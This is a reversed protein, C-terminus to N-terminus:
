TCSEIDVAVQPGHLSLFRSTGEEEESSLAYYDQFVLFHLDQKFFTSFVACVGEALQVPCLKESLEAHQEARKPRGVM